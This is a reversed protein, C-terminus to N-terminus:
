NAVGVENAKNAKSALQDRGPKLAKMADATYNYKNSPDWLLWGSTKAEECAQIQLKIETGTYARRDFAYDRFNQLWPRLKKSQGDLRKKAKELTYYVIERPYGVPKRYGPIGLHYGSPYVMLSIYDLSKAVGEIQQGIDTDNSNWPVYGFIDASFYVNYPLLEKYTTELFSDITKVRNEMTNPQSYKTASLRGDTPFRVYDFQIEDFGANAAERAIAINYEWVEKRFPDVWALQENDIWPKKTRTDIIAWEPKYNALLNDKFVVIRGIVYIDQKHLEELLSRIDKITPLKHAGIQSALPVEYKYSLLGRDGKVDIVVANLDTDNILGLVRNRLLKSSVGFHTLYLGKADFPKLSVRAELDTPVSLSAQRYGSAKVLVTQALNVKKLSFHGEADSHVVAGNHFVTASPIRRNTQSDVVTGSLPGEAVKPMVTEPKAKSASASTSPPSESSQAATAGGALSITGPQGQCGWGILSVGLPVVLLLKPKRM